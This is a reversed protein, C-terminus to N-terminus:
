STTYIANHINHHLVFGSYIYKIKLDDEDGYAAIKIRSLM